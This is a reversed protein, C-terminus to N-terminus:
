SQVEKAAHCDTCGQQPIGMAQHCGICQRHYAVQLGPQDVAAAAAEGHCSRCPTPVTGEPARHHCGACSREVTGHFAVALASARVGADLRAVIKRHPLKAPEYEKALVGIVVEEPFADSAAPLPPLLAEAAPPSPLTDPAAVARSPGLHCRVCSRQSAAPPISRHCGQCEVAAAQTAHCGVCALESGARHSSEELTVMGGTAAGALTHCEHCPELGRHHCESCFSAKPEHGLHNFAVMGSRTGEAGIWGRDPQGRLLRPVVDLRKFGAQVQADHCGVCLTPGTTEAGETRRLHCGVCATHSANRLSLKKGDDRDLHCASCSDEAGKLYVRRRTAEDFVHHCTECKEPFAQDHRAHLSYDWAMEARQSVGPEHRVHCGGCVLPGRRGAPGTRSEHCTMCADHAGDMWADRDSLDRLPAWGPALGAEVVAHCTACGETALADTHAAHNFEVVPRELEGVWEPITMVTTSPPIPRVPAQTAAAAGGAVAASALLVVALFTCRPM